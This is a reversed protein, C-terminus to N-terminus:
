SKSKASVSAAIGEGDNLKTWNGHEMCCCFFCNNVVPVM